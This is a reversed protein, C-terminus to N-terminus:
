RRGVELAAQRDPGALPLTITFSTGRGAESALCLQGRMAEVRERVGILGFGDSKRGPDFGRGNDRLELRVAAPRFTLRAEFTSAGAHRLVNTLVEQVVRLLNSEWEAPLKSPLGQVAFMASVATGATMRRVLAELAEALDKDDLERPRLARVSRRAETLSDRALGKARALHGDAELRLGRQQADAAAELQVIVGTLGQALTDHIDRAMRNREATVAAERSQAALRMLHLSLTAQNTLAMALAMEEPVFSRLSTFRIGILGDVHGGSCMPTVLITIVGQRVLRTRWPFDPLTRIDAMVVPRRERVAEPWPWADDLPLTLQPEGITPESHTFYRTDEFSSHFRLRGAADDMCWVSSSHAGLQRTATRLVHALLRDPDTEMALASLTSTLADVHGRALRESAALAAERGHREANDAPRARDPLAPALAVFADTSFPSGM